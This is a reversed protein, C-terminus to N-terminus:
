QCETGEACIDDGGGRVGDPGMSYLEFSDNNKSYQYDNNWPDKPIERIIPAIGGSPNALQDLSDPYDNTLVFYQTVANGLNGVEVSARKIKSNQIAGQAFFGVIGMISAMITLVIMIEVLTMGREGIRAARAVREIRVDNECSEIIIDNM